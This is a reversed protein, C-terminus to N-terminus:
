LYMEFDINKPYNINCAHSIEILYNGWGGHVKSVIIVGCTYTSTVHPSFPDFNLNRSLFMVCM